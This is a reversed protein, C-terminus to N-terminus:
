LKSFLYGVVIKRRGSSGSAVELFRSTGLCWAKKGFSELNLSIM